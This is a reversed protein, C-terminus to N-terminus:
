EHPRDDLLGMKWGGPQWRRHIGTVLWKNWNGNTMSAEVEHVRVCDDLRSAPAVTVVSLLFSPYDQKAAM